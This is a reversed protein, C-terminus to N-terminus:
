FFRAKFVAIKANMVSKKFRQFLRLIRKQLTHRYHWAVKFCAPQISKPPWGTETGDGVPVWRDPDDQFRNHDSIAIFDYGAAKYAAVAQEPLARGDSWLTHMHLMGRRWRADRPSCPKMCSAVGAAMMGGIFGKRTLGGVMDIKGSMSLENTTKEPVPCEGM